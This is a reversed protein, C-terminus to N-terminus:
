HLTYSCFYYTMLSEKDDQILGQESQRAPINKFTSCLYIPHNVDAEWPAVKGVIHNCPPFFDHCSVACTSYNIWVSNIGLFGDVNIYEFPLHSCYNGLHLRLLKSTLTLPAPHLQIDAVLKAMLNLKYIESETDM